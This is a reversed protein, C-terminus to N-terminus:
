AGCQVRRLYQLAPENSFCDTCEKASDVILRKAIKNSPLNAPSVVAELYFEKMPTRSLGHTLEDIAQQLVRGGLGQGRMSEAVAYGIQFCQVGDVPETMAFLAIAQVKNGVIHAYTFRPTGNPQDLLVKITPHLECNRLQVSGADLAAQLGNLADMPDTM